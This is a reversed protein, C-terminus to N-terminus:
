VRHEDLDALPDEGVLRGRMDLGVRALAVKPDHTFFVSGGRDFLDGLIASKEDVLTEACRDYGMSLANRMWPMGPVLDGAFLVPGPGQEDTKPIEVLIMGLTHGDSRHFRYDTGLTSSQLDDGVLELRGSEALLQPLVDIYSARDRIHPKKAHEFQDRGTVFRANPFLLRPQAGETYAALLGGAHDFHLHSLVVVDIDADSLGNRALNELLVHHSEVIGFRNRLKPEFFAGIGAEFLINRRGERVLLSRCALDIRNKEDAPAWMEWLVKPANGFMSGGDLKQTNGPISTLTRQMVRVM